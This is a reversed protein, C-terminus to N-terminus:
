RLVPLNNKSEPEIRSYYLAVYDDVNEPSPDSSIITFVVNDNDEIEEFTINWDAELGGIPLEDKVLKIDLFYSLDDKILELTNYETINSPYYLVERYNKDKNEIQMFVIEDDRLGRTTIGEKIRFSYNLEKLPTMEIQVLEEEAPTIQIASELYGEKRAVIYGSICDPFLAELKPSARAIPIGEFTPQATQGIYCDFAVCEYNIDVNAIDENTQNDITIVTLENNALSCYDENTISAFSENILTLDQERDPLNNTVIVPTAFSFIYTSDPDTSETITFVVPYELTYFHHYVKICNGVLPIDLNNGEIRDGRSPYVDFRLNDVYNTRVRTNSYQRSGAQFKYFNEFYPIGTDVDDTNTFQVYNLNYKLMQRADERLKAKSFKQTCSFEMGETPFDPNTQIMDVTLNELFTEQNELKMIDVALNYAKGLKTRTETTFEQLTVIRDKGRETVDLPYDLEIEVKNDSISAKAEPLATREIVFQNQFEPFEGLCADINEEVYLEIDEEMDELQPIRDGDNIDYWYPLIFPSGELQQVYSEPNLRIEDPLTLYGGQQGLLVAAVNAQEAACEEVYLKIPLFEQPVVTPERLVTYNIYLFIGAALLLIIGVIIFTTIQAKSKM